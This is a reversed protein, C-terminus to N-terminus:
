QPYLNTLLILLPLALTFISIIWPYRARRSCFMLLLCAATIGMPGYVALNRGIMQAYAGSAQINLGVQEPLNELNYSALRLSIWVVPIAMFVKRLRFLWLGTTKLISVAKGLPTDPVAEPQLIQPIEDQQGTKRAPLFGGFFGRVKEAVGSFKGFFEGVKNRVTSWLETFGGLKDM